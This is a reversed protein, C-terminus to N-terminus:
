AAVAHLVQLAGALRRLESLMAEAGAQQETNGTFVGGEIQGFVMPAVVAEVVPVMRLALVTEKFQQVARLGGSIGGYSAFGVPKYNWETYILDLANKLGAPASHNYEPTVIVFADCAAIRESWARTAESVYQGLRPHHPEGTTLALGVEALDILDVEFGGHAQAQDAVWRAVTHGVRVDRVSGSIVGLRLPHAATEAM